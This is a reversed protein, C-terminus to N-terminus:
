ALFDKPIKQSRAFLDKACYSIIGIRFGLIVAFFYFQLFFPCFILYFFHGVYMFFVYM